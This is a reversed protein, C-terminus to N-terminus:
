SFLYSKWKDELLLQPIHWMWIYPQCTHAQKHQVVPNSLFVATLWSAALTPSSESSHRLLSLLVQLLAPWSGDFVTNLCSLVLRKRLCYSLMLPVPLSLFRSLFQSIQINISSTTFVVLKGSTECNEKVRMEFWEFVVPLGFVCVPSFFFGKM